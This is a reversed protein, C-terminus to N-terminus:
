TLPPKRQTTTQHQEHRTNTHTVQESQFRGETTAGGELTTLHKHPHDNPPKPHQEQRTHPHRHRPHHERDTNTHTVQQDKQCPDRGRDVQHRLWAGRRHPRAQRWSPLPCRRRRWPSRRARYSCHSPRGVSVHAGAVAWRCLGRATARGSAAARRALLHV